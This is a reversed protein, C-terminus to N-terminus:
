DKWFKGEENKVRLNAELNPRGPIQLFNPRLDVKMDHGVRPVRRPLDPNRLQEDFNTM